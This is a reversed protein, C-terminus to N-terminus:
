AGELLEVEVPSMEYGLVGLLDYQGAPDSELVVALALLARDPDVNHVRDTDTGLVELWTRVTKRPLHEAMATVVGRRLAPLAEKGPRQAGSLFPALFQARLHAAIARPEDSGIVEAAVAQRYKKTGISRVVREQSEAPLGLLEHADDLTINGAKLAEFATPELELLRRRRTVLDKSVGVLSAVREPTGLDLVLQDYGRAEELPTLDRRHKNERMMVVKQDTVTKFDPRISCEVELLGAAISAARRRHGAVVVWEDAAVEFSGSCSMAGDTHGGLVGNPNRDVQQWCSGCLGRAKGHSGPAVILPQILGHAAVDATLATIDGLDIRPNNPHEAISALPLIRTSM